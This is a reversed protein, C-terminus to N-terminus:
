VGWWVTAAVSTIVGCWHPKFTVFIVL